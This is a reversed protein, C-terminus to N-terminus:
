CNHWWASDVVNVRDPAEAVATGGPAVGTVRVFYQGQVSAGHCVFPNWYHSYVKGGGTGYTWIGGGVPVTTALAAAAPAITLGLVLATAGLLTKRKMM